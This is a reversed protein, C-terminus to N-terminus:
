LNPWYWNVVLGAVTAFIIAYAVYFMFNRAGLVIKVAGLNTIKTAAGAIMFAIASGVTMGEQLWVSILPITGGGCTYLPVGLAAAM